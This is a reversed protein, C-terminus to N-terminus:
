PRAVFGIWFLKEAGVDIDYKKLFRLTGDEQIRFASLGGPVHQIAGDSLADRAIM